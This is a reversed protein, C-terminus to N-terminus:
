YPGRPPLCTRLNVRTEVNPHGYPPPTVREAGLFSVSIDRHPRRRRHDQVSLRPKPCASTQQCAPGQDRQPRHFPRSATLRTAGSADSCVASQKGTFHEALLKTLDLAVIIPDTRTQHAGRLGALCARASPRPWPPKLSLVGLGKQDGTGLRLPVIDVFLLLGQAGARVARSGCADSVMANRSASGPDSLCMGRRRDIYVHPRRQTSSFQGDRLCSSVQCWDSAEVSANVDNVVTGNTM